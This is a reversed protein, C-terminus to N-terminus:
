APGRDTRPPTFGLIVQVSVAPSYGSRPLTSVRGIAILHASHGSDLVHGPGHRREIGVLAAARRPVQEVLDAALPRDEHQAFEGPMPRGAEGVQPSLEGPLRTPNNPPSASRSSTYHDSRTGLPDLFDDKSPLKYTWFIGRTYM